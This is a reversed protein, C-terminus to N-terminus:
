AAELASWDEDDPHPPRNDNAPKPAPDPEPEPADRIILHVLERRSVYVLTGDVGRVLLYDTYAYDADHLYKTFTNVAGVDATITIEKPLHDKEARLLMTVQFM